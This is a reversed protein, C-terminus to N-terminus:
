LNEQFDLHCSGIKKPNQKMVLRLPTPANDILKRREPAFDLVSKQTPSKIWEIILSDLPTDEPPFFNLPFVKGINKYFIGMKVTRVQFNLQSETERKAFKFTVGNTKYVDFFFDEDYRFDIIIYDNLLALYPEFRYYTEKDHVWLTHYFYFSHNKYQKIYNEASPIYLPEHDVVIISRRDPKFDTFDDSEFRVLSNRKQTDYKGSFSKLKYSWLDYPSYDPPICQIEPRLKEYKKYFGYGYFSKKEGYVNLTRPLQIKHNDKFYFIHSFRGEDENPKMMIVRNNRQYYYNYVKMLELNPGSRGRHWMDIDYLGIVAM